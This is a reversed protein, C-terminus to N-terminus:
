EMREWKQEGPICLWVVSEGAMQAERVEEGISEIEQAEAEITQITQGIEPGPGSSKSPSEEPVGLIV